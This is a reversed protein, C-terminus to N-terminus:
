IVYIDVGGKVSKMLVSNLLNSTEPDNYDFNVEPTRVRQEARFELSSTYEERLRLIPAVSQEGVYFSLETPNENLIISSLTSGQFSDTLSSGRLGGLAQARNFRSEEVETDLVRKRFDLQKERILVGYDIGVSDPLESVLLKQSVLGEMGDESFIYPTLGEVPLDLPSIKEKYVEIDGGSFLHLGSSNFVTTVTEEDGSGVSVYLGKTEDTIKLGGIGISGSIEADDSKITGAFYGEKAFLFGEDNVFFNPLNNYKSSDSERWYDIIDRLETYGEEEFIINNLNSEPNAGGWIVIGNDLLTTIGSQGTTITGKLFANEAFLGYGELTGSDPNSLITEFNSNSVGTLLGVVVKPVHTFEENILQNEFVTLALGSGFSSPASIDSNLFLGGEGEGGLSIFSLNSYDKRQINDEVFSLILSIKVKLYNTGEEQGIGLELIRVNRTELGKQVVCYSDVKLFDPVNTIENNESISVLSTDELWIWAFQSSGESGAEESEEIFEILHIKSAPRVLIAGSSCQIENYKLVSSGITGRAQINEFIASGSPDIKWGLFGLGNDQYIGEDASIFIKEESNGITLSGSIISRDGTIELNKAIVKGNKTIVLDSLSQIEQDDEGFREELQLYYQLDNIGSDNLPDDPDESNYYASYNGALIIAGNDYSDIENSMLSPPNIMVFSDGILLYGQIEARDTLNLNGASISGDTGNLIFSKNEDYISSSPGDFTIPNTTGVQFIGSVSGASATIEGEIYANESYMRGDHTVYFTPTKEVYSITTDGTTEDTSEIRNLRNVWIAYTPDGTTDYDFEESENEGEQISSHIINSGEPAFGSNFIRHTNITTITEGEEPDITEYSDAYTSGISLIGLINGSRAVLDGEFYSDGSIQISSAFVRGTNDIVFNYATANDQEGQQARSWFVYRSSETDDGTGGQYQYAGGQIGIVSSERTGYFEDTTDTDGVFLNEALWLSGTKTTQLVTDGNMNRLTLGYLYENGPPERTPDWDGRHKIGVKRNNDGFGLEVRCVNSPMFQGGNNDFIRIAPLDTGIEVSGTDSNVKLGRWTLSVLSKKEIYDLRNQWTPTTITTELGKSLISPSSYWPNGESDYSFDESSAGSTIIDYIATNVEEESLSYEQSGSFHYTVAGADNTSGTYVVVEKDEGNGKYYAQNLNLNSAGLPTESAGEAKPTKLLYLGHQDFRVFGSKSLPLISGDDAVTQYATIGLANWVYSPIGNNMIKIIGTDIQGTTLLSANIGGPQFGATWNLGGDTTIYIGEAVVKLRKAPNDTAVVEIGRDSIIVNQNVSQALILSNNLLSNQLVSAIIEGTPTFNEGRSYIQDKTQVTQITASIRSFLDEFQTRFNQVTITSESPNDLNDDMESIVFEEPHLRRGGDEFEDYGFFEEDCIFTKDGVNIDYVEYGELGALQIVDINYSIQPRASTSTVREADLFYQDSDTYSDDSWTGESIYRRYKNEFLNILSAKEQNIRELEDSSHNQRALYPNTSSNEDYQETYDEENVDSTTFDIDCLYGNSLEKDFYGLQKNLKELSEYLTNVTAAFTRASKYYDYCTDASPPGLGVSTSAENNANYTSGTTTLTWYTGKYIEGNKVTVKNGNSSYSWNVPIYEANVRAQEKNANIQLITSIRSEKLSSITNTLTAYNQYEAKYEDRKEKMRPSFAMDMSSTGYMDNIFSQSDLEGIEIYYNFNYIYSEGLDNLDSDAISILGSSSTESESNEVWVKTAVEDSNITREISSVNTGYHFGAWQNQGVVERFQIYKQQKGYEDRKIRGNDYYEINFRIWGEFLEAISQLLNYYNSKEEQLTRVKQNGTSTYKEVVNNAPSDFFTRETPEDDNPLYYFLEIKEEVPANTVVDADDPFIYKDNFGSKSIIKSRTGDGSLGLNKAIDSAPVDSLDRPIVKYFQAKNIKIGYKTKDAGSPVTPKIMFYPNEMTESLVFILYQDSSLGNQSIKVNNSDLNLTSKSLRFDITSASSGSAKEFSVMVAYVTGAEIKTRSTYLSSNYIWPEGSTSTPTVLLSYNIEQSADAIEGDIVSVITANDISSTSGTITSTTSDWNTTDVFDQGNALLNKASQPTYALVSNYGWINHGNQTYNWDDRTTEGDENIEVVVEYISSKVETESYVKTENGIKFSYTATAGSGNKRLFTIKQFAGNSKKNYYSKKVDLSEIDSVLTPSGYKYRYIVRELEDDYKSTATAVEEETINIKGTISDYKYDGNENQEYVERKEIFEGDEHPLYEWDTKPQGDKYLVKEALEDITGQGSEEDFTLEYGTKSLEYILMDSCSFDFYIKKGDRRETRENIIFSYWKDGYKLKVKNKPWMDALVSNYEKEDRNHYYKPMSFTLTNMGNINRNLHIDSARGPASSSDSALEAIEIEDFVSKTIRVNDISTKQEAVEDLVRFTVEKSEKDYSVFFLDTRSDGAIRIPTVEPIANEMDVELPIVEIDIETDKWLSLRYPILRM